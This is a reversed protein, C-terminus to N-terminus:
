HGFSVMIGQRITDICHDLHSIGLLEDKDTTDVEGYLGRRVLNQLVM